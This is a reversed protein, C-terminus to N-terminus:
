RPSWNPPSSTPPQSRSVPTSACSRSTPSRASRPWPTRHLAIALLTGLFTSILTSLTAVLLTNWTAELIASDQALQRYWAWSAGGWSQGHRDANFSSVAVAVLPLFLLAMGLWSLTRVFRPTRRM